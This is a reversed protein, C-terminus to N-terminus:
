ENKNFKTMDNNRSVSRADTNLEQIVKEIEYRKKPDRQLM